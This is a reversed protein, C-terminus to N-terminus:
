KQPKRSCTSNDAGNAYPCVGVLRLRQTMV